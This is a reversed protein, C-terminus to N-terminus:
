HVARRLLCGFSGDAFIKGVESVGVIAKCRM